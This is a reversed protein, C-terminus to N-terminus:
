RMFDIFVGLERKIGEWDLIRFADLLPVNIYASM